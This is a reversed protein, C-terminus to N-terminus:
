RSGLPKGPLDHDTQAIVHSEIDQMAVLDSANMEDGTYPLKM